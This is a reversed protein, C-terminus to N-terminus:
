GSPAGADGSFSLRHGLFRAPVPICQFQRLLHRVPRHRYGDSGQARIEPAKINDTVAQIINWFIKDGLARQRMTLDGIKFMQRIEDRYYLADNYCEQLNRVTLSKLVELMNLIVDPTEEPLEKPVSDTDISSTDFINFLLVSYYAVTARGSETIITPHAIDHENLIEMIAEIVDACYEDLTYNRSNMYNTHSGDYDVALGGGLDFYGMPAGEIVLGAYVRCAEQISARIDRINPIQSGLHYHLLQLCDLM